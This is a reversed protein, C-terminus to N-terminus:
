IPDAIPDVVKLTKIKEVRQSNGAIGRFLIYPEQGHFKTRLLNKSMKAVSKITKCGSLSHCVLLSM